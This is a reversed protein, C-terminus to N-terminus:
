ENRLSNVPNALAARLSRFSITFLAVGFTLMAALAFVWWQLPMRYAFNQLWKDMVVYGLPLAIVTAIMVPKLMDRSLLLLINQVSSGLVKRVGIEKTRKAAAFSALGFLGLCAVFIALGSFVSIVTQQRLDKKYMEGFQEDLFSYELPYGPAAKAYETKVLGIGNQLDGARLKVLIVRRDEVPSIILPEINEKLTQFNFDAVVGIVKRPLSDRVTNKIWKGIAEGPTWGLKAAATQNIMVADTSDTPFQASFDRGSVVKLGLTKVFEFDAFETRLNQRENHGEVDFMHGDFFGGPEGSMASVSQVASQNQLDSKFAQINRYIDGNDIPVILTQEKNYGLQKNKVYSMQNKIVLTGVILFVTIVFQVVVLAQRFVAGGKGLQLKGKLAQIPSFASMFFAPYSGALFGVFLIVGLLFLYIPPTTWSVKLTYGLLENYWSMVLLLLGVAFICSIITLLISEGIFQQVLNKRLAGMVKRLGVEKSREVARLTSLNMFNICAIVLILVAISLFIFVVTKDGHKVVGGYESPIEFYIDKLPTLSLTFHFGFKRMDSGMYKQMFNPLQREIQAETVQPALQVYTFIGNNIWTTMVSRNRYNELPIVLDFQLHSNSPVDKIIGAVSLPLEKDVTIIKGMAADASGFYKKATSETLVVNGPKQMVTAADGKILPFSFLDFFGPDVDIVRKEHFSKNGITILNDTPNVRVAKVIQGKFDNLLAPAYPGSLYSVSRSQGGNDFGRMVRYISKGKEHFSDVSFENMIFLFIM